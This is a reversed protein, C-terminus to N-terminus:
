QRPWSAPLSAGRATSPFLVVSASPTSALAQITKDLGELVTGTDFGTRLTSTFSYAGRYATTQQRKSTELSDAEPGEQQLALIGRSSRVGDGPQLRVFRSRPLPVPKSANKPRSWSPVPSKDFDSEPGGKDRRASGYKCLRM